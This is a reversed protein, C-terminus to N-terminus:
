GGSILGILAIEGSPDVMQEASLYEHNVAIRSVSLSPTLEPYAEGIRLLLDRVSLPGSEVAISLERCETLEAQPGFVRVTLHNDSM